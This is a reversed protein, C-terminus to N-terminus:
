GERNAEQDVVLLELASQHLDIVAFDVELLVQSGLHLVVSLGVPPDIAQPWVEDLKAVDSVLIELSYYIRPHGLLDHRRHFVHDSVALRKYCEHYNFPSCEYFMIM